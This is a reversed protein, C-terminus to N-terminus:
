LGQGGSVLQLEIDSGQVPLSVRQEVLAAGSLSLCGPASPAVQLLWTVGEPVGALFWIIQQKRAGQQQGLSIIRAQRRIM